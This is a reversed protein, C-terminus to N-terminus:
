KMNLLHRTEAPSTFSMGKETLFDSFEKIIEWNQRATGGGALCDSDEFGLRVVQAGDEIAKWILDYGKRGSETIGWIAEQENFYERFMKEMCLLAAPTAPAAGTHGLVISVLLPTELKFKDFLERTTHLMGIEFVEVEPVKHYKKLLEVCYAVDKPINIYVHEGLNVSGVNLSHFPVDKEYIPRCREEITLDSVGGTSLQVIIDSHKRVADIITRTFEMNATLKANAERVHLHVISAGLEASRLIDEVLENRDIEHEAACVPAVSLAIKKM